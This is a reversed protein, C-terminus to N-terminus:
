LHHLFKSLLPTGKLVTNCLDEFVALVELLFSWLKSVIILKLFLEIILLFDPSEEILEVLLKVLKSFFVPDCVALLSEISELVEEDL